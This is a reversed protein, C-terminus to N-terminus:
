MRFFSKSVLKEDRKGNIKGTEDLGRGVMEDYSPYFNYKCFWFPEQIEHAIGSALSLGMSAMNKESQSLQSQTIETSRLRQLIEENPMSKEKQMQLLRNQKKNSLYKPISFHRIIASM